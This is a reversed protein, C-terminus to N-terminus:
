ARRRSLHRGKRGKAEVAPGTTVWLLATLVIASALCWSCTAGIVFPELFTLYISFLTGGLVLIWTMRAANVTGTEPRYRDLGWFALIGIYGVLGVLGVPLFGFLTAYPSGQVANCDGLPGCFAETHSMEVYTLYAAIGIGAASLAPVLWTPYQRGRWRKSRQYLGWLHFVSYIMGVLVLTAVTNGWPDQGYREWVSRVSGASEGQGFYPFTGAELASALGPLDPWGVGGAALGNEILTPFFTPIEHSGVLVTEGVTLNPVGTREAPVRYQSLAAQYLQEGAPRSVDVELIQLQDGYQAVLPPLDEGMVKHCHSCTPAYFLIARVVPAQAGALSYSYLVGLILLAFFYRNRISM